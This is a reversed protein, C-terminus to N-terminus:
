IINYTYVCRITHPRANEPTSDAMEEDAEGEEREVAAPKPVSPPAEGPTAGGTTAAATTAAASGTAPATGTTAPAAAEGKKKKSFDEASASLKRKLSIWADDHDLGVPRSFIQQVMQPLSTDDDFDAAFFRYLQQRALRMCKDVSKLNEMRYSLADFQVKNGEVSFTPFRLALSGLTMAAAITCIVFVCM